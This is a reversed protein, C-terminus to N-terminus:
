ELPARGHRATLDVDEAHREQVHDAAPEARDHQEVHDQARLGAHLPLVSRRAAPRPRVPELLFHELAVLVQDHQAVRELSVSRRRARGLAQGVADDLFGLLEPLLEGVGLLVVSDRRSAISLSFASRFGSSSPVRRSAAPVGLGPWGPVRTLPKTPLPSRWYRVPRLTPPSRIRMRTSTDALMSSSVTTLTIRRRLMDSTRRM